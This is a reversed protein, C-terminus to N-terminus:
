HPTDKYPLMVVEEKTQEPATGVLRKGIDLPSEAADEKEAAEYLPIGHKSLSDIVNKSVTVANREDALPHNILYKNMVRAEVSKAMKLLAKATSDIEKLTKGRIDAIFRLIVPNQLLDFGSKSSPFGAKKRAADYSITTNQAIIKCFSQERLNLGEPLKLNTLKM